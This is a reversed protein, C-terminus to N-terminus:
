RSTSKNALVIYHIIYRGNIPKRLSANESLHVKMLSKNLTMPQYLTAIVSSIFKTQDISITFRKPVTWWFIKLWQKQKTSKHKWYFCVKLGNRMREEHRGELKAWFMLWFSFWSEFGSTLSQVHFFIAVPLDPFCEVDSTVFACRARIMPCKSSSQQMVKQIQCIHYLFNHFISWKILSRVM